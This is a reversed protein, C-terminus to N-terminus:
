RLIIVTALSVIVINICIFGAIAWWLKKYGGGKVALYATLSLGVLIVLVWMATVLYNPGACGTSDEGPYCKRFPAGGFGSVDYSQTSISIGMLAFFYLPMYLVDILVLLIIGELRKAWVARRVANEPPATVNDNKM